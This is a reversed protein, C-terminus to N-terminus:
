FGYQQCLADLEGFSKGKSFDKAQLVTLGGFLIQYVGLRKTRKNLRSPRRFRNVYYYEAVMAMYYIVFLKVIRHYEEKPYREKVLAQIFEVMKTNPNNDTKEYIKVFDEYVYERGYTDGLELLENFYDQDRPPIPTEDGVYYYVCWDDKYGRAYSLITGDELTTFVRENQLPM